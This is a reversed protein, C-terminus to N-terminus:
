LSLPVFFRLIPMKSRSDAFVPYTWTGNANFTLPNAVIPAGTDGWDVFTNWTGVISSAITM